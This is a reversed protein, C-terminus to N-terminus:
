SEQTDLPTDSATERREYVVRGRDKVLRALSTSVQAQREFEEETLVILDKAIGVAGVCAYAEQARRYAPRDSHSVVIMLDLDSDADPQGYAYSGFLIIRQPRMGAVLRRVIEQIAGTHEVSAEASNMTEAFQVTATM